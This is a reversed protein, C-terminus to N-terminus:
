GNLLAMVDSYKYMVHRGGIKRSRLYGQKNWRWLTTYNVHLLRATEKRTLFREEEPVDMWAECDSQANKTQTAVIKQAMENVMTDLDSRSMVVLQNSLIKNNSEM